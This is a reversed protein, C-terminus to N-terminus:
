ENIGWGRVRSQEFLNNQLVSSARRRESESEIGEEQVPEIPKTVFNIGSTEAVEALCSYAPSSERDEPMSDLLAVLQSESDKKRPAWCELWRKVGDPLTETGHSVIIIMDAALADELALQSGQWQQLIDFRWLHCDYSQTPRLRDVVSHCAKKALRGTPEDAYALVMNLHRRRYLRDDCLTTYEDEM